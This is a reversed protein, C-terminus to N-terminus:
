SSMLAAGAACFAANLATFAALKHAGTLLNALTFVVNLVTLTLMFTM